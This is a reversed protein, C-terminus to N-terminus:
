NQKAYRLHDRQAIHLVAGFHAHRGAVVLVWARLKAVVRSGHLVVDGFEVVQSEHASRAPTLLCLIYLYEHFGVFVPHAMLLRVSHLQMKSIADIFCWQYTFFLLVTYPKSGGQVSYM